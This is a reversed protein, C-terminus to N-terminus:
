FKPKPPPPPLQLRARLTRIEAILKDRERCLEDIIGTYHATARMSENTVDAATCKQFEVIDEERKKEIQSIGEQLLVCQNEFEKTKIIQKDLEIRLQASESGADDVGFVRSAASSGIHLQKDNIKSKKWKSLHEHITALSGRGLEKRVARLTVRINQKKLSEAATAIEPYGLGHAM